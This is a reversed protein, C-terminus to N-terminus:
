RLVGDKHARFVADNVTGEAHMDNFLALLKFKHGGSDTQNLVTLRIVCSSCTTHESHHNGGGRKRVPVDYSLQSTSTVQQRHGNFEKSTCSCGEVCEVQVRGMKQRGSILYAFGWFSQSSEPPILFCVDLTAGASNAIYGPKPRKRANQEIVYEWGSRSLVFPHM